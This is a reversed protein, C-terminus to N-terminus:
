NGERVTTSSLPALLEALDPEITGDRQAKKLQDYVSGLYALRDFHARRIDEITESFSNKEFHLIAWSLLDIRSVKGGNNGQNISSHMRDLAKEAEETITVKKLKSKTGTTSKSKEM